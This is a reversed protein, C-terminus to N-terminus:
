YRDATWAEWAQFQAETLTLKQVLSHPADDTASRPLSYSVRYQDPETAKELRIRFVPITRRAERWILRQAATLASPTSKM